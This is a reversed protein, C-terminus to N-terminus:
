VHAAEQADTQANRTEELSGSLSADWVGGGLRLCVGSILAPKAKVEIAAPKGVLAAVSASVADLSGRDLEEATELVAPDGPQWAILLQRRDDPSTAALSEILRAVLQRHLTRDAAQSLFRQTLDVALQVLEQRVAALAEERREALQRSTEAAQEQGLKRADALLREREVEAQHHAERIQQDRRRDTEALEAQLRSRLTEAERQARETEAQADLMAQRRRDIAEHLPRYLLRHLVFAVVVFNVIQFVFTWLHINM